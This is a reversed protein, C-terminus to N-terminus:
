TKIHKEFNNKLDSLRRNRLNEFEPNDMIMKTNFDEDLPNQTKQNKSSPPQIQTVSLIHADEIKEVSDDGNRDSKVIGQSM